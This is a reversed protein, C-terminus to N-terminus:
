MKERSSSEAQAKRSERRGNECCNKSVELKQQDKKDKCVLAEFEQRARNRALLLSKRQAQDILAVLQLRFRAGDVWHDRMHEAAVADAAARVNKHM